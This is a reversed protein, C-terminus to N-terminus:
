KLTKKIYYKTFFPVRYTEVIENDYVHTILDDNCAIVEDIGNTSKIHVYLYMEKSQPNPTKRSFRMGEIKKIYTQYNEPKVVLTDYHFESINEEPIIIKITVTSRLYLVSLVFITFILLVIPLLRLLLKKISM